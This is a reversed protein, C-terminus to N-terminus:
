RKIKRRSTLSLQPNACNLLCATADATVSWTIEGAASLGDPHLEPCFCEQRPASFIYCGIRGVGACPVATQAQQNRLHASRTILQEMPTQVALPASGDVNEFRVRRMYEGFTHFRINRGFHHHFTPCCNMGLRRRIPGRLTINKYPQFKSFGNFSYDLHIVSPQLFLGGSTKRLFDFSM